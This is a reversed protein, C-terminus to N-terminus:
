AYLEPYVNALSGNFATLICDAVTMTVLADPAVEHLVHYTARVAYDSKDASRGTRDVRGLFEILPGVPVKPVPAQKLPSRGTMRAPKGQAERAIRGRIRQDELQRQYLDPREAKVRERYRRCREANGKRLNEKAWDSQREHLKRKLYPDDVVERYRKRRQDNVCPKCLRSTRASGDDTWHYYDEALLKRRRCSPCVKWKRPRGRKRQASVAV